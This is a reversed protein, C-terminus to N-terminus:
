ACKFAVVKSDGRSFLPHKPMGISTHGLCSLRGIKKSVIRARHHLNGKNGWAAILLDCEKSARELWWDNQPGVLDKSLSLTRPDASRLAFLNVLLLSDFGLREAFAICRRITPDDKQADGTSPNLCIFGCLGDAKGWNRRLWYRYRGCLSIGAGSSQYTKQGM